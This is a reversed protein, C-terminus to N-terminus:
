KQKEIKSSLKKGKLLVRRIDGDTTVGIVKRKDEVFVAGLQNDEIMKLANELTDNKNILFKDTKM